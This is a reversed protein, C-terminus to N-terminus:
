ERTSTELQITVGTQGPMIDATMVYAQQCGMSPWSFPRGDSGYLLHGGPVRRGDPLTVYVERKVGDILLVSNAPLYSVLFEGDYGCGSTTATGQYFRIRLQKAVTAGTTVRVTPVTRGWRDQSAATLTYTRRRWSTIKLINPPLITAPRPPKQIATYFPDDIFDLYPDDMASCNEGVPDTFSTGATVDSTFLLTSNTFAWPRNARITFDARWGVVKQYGLDKKYEPGDITVTKYFTRRRANAEAITTPQATYVSVQHGTCGLGMSPGCADQALVQNLWTKGEDMAEEDEAFMTAVVRMERSAHRAQTSIGGDGLLETGTVRRTSDEIGTIKHIWLGYFRGTAPRSARYWPAGDTAPSVYAAHGLATHLETTERDWQFEPVNAKLYAETRQRNGIEVGGFSFYGEYM